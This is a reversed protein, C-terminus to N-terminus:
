IRVVATMGSPDVGEVSAGPYPKYGSPPSAIPATSVMLSGDAVKYFLQNGAANIAASGLRVRILGCEWYSVCRDIPACPSSVDVCSAATIGKVIEANDGTPLAISYLDDPMSVVVLSDMMHEMAAAPTAPTSTLTFTVGPVATIGVNVETGPAGRYVLCAGNQCWRGPFLCSAQLQALLQAQAAADTAPLPQEFCIAMSQAGGFGSTPTVNITMGPNPDHCDAPFVVLAPDIKFDCIKIEQYGGGSSRRPASRRSGRSCGGAATLVEVGTALDGKVHWGVVTKDFGLETLGPM